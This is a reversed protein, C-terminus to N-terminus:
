TIKKKLFIYENFEIAINIGKAAISEKKNESLLSYM